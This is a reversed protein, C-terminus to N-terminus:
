PDPASMHAIPKELVAAIASNGKRCQTRNRIHKKSMQFILTGALIMIDLYILVELIM